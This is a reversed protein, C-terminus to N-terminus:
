YRQIFSLYNRDHTLVYCDTSSNEFNGYITIPHDLLILYKKGEFSNIFNTQIGIIAKFRRSIYQALPQDGKTIDLVEVLQGCSRLAKALEDIFLNLIDYCADSTRLLLITQANHYTKVM